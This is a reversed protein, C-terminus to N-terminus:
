FRVGLVLGAQRRTVDDGYDAYRLEFGYYARSDEDAFQVGLAGRIGGLTDFNIPLAENNPENRIKMNSYGLRAYANFSNGLAATLRGGVTIDHRVSFSSGTTGTTDRDTTTETVEVEPGIAVSTGVPFDYGVGIGYYAGHIDETTGTGAGDLDYSVEDYGVVAEFRFGAPQAAAPSAFAVALVPAAALLFIKKM